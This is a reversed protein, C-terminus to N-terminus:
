LSVLKESGCVPRTWKGAVIRPNREEGCEKCGYVEGDATPRDDMEIAKTEQTQRIQDFAEVQLLPRGHNRKVLASKMIETM